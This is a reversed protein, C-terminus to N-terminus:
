KVFSIFMTRQIKSDNTLLSVHNPEIVYYKMLDINQEHYQFFYNCNNNM